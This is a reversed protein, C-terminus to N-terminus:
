VAVTEDPLLQELGPYVIHGIIESFQGGALMWAWHEHDQGTGYIVGTAYAALWEFLDPENGLRADGGLEFTVMDPDGLDPFVGDLVPNITDDLLAAM